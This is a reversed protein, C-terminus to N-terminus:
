RPDPYYELDTVRGSHHARVYPPVSGLHPPRAGLLSHLEPEPQRSQSVAERRFLDRVLSGAGLESERGALEWGNAM